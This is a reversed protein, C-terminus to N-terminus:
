ETSIAAAPEVLELLLLEPPVLWDLLELPPPLEMEEFVTLPTVVVVLESLLAHGGQRCTHQDQQRGM